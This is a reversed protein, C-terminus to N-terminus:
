LHVAVYQVNPHTNPFAPYNLNEDREIIKEQEFLVFRDKRFDTIRHTM